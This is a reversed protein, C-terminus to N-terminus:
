SFARAAPSGNAGIGESKMTTSSNESISVAFGSNM